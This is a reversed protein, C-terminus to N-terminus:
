THVAAREKDDTRKDPFHYLDTRIIRDAAIRNGCASVDLLNENQGMVCVEM